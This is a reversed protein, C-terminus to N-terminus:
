AAKWGWVQTVLFTTVFSDADLCAQECERLAQDLEAEALLGLGVIRARLAEALEVPLRMAPHADYLAFVAARLGVDVLGARRFLRYLRQGADLDAGDAALATRVAGTLRDWAPRPPYCRWHTADPEQMVVVGGPRTLGLMARLAERDPGAPHLRFRAHVLDFPDAPPGDRGDGGGDGGAPSVVRGAPGVRRRLAAAIGLPAEGLDLCAAGPRLGVRDLLVETEADWLRRQLDPGAVARALAAGAAPATPPVNAQRM